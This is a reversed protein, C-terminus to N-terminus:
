RDSGDHHALVAGPADLRQNWDLPSRNSSIIWAKFISSVPDSM